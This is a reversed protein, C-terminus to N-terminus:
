LVRIYCFAFYQAYFSLFILREFISIRLKQQIILISFTEGIQVPSYLCSKMSTLWAQSLSTLQVVVQM